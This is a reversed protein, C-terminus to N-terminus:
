FNKIEKLTTDVAAQLSQHQIDLLENGACDVYRIIWSFTKREPYSDTKSIKLFYDTYDITFWAPLKDLKKEIESKM